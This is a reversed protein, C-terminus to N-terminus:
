LSVEVSGNWVVSTKTRFLSVVESVPGSCKGGCGPCVAQRINHEKLEAQVSLTMCGNDTM